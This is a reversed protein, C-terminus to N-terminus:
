RLFRKWFEKRKWPSRQPQYPGKRREVTGHPTAVRGPPPADMGLGEWDVFWTYHCTCYPQGGETRTCNPNPIPMTELAQAIPLRKDDLEERCEPCCTAAVIEVWGAKTADSDVKALSVLTYKAAESLLLTPDKGEEALFGAMLSALQPDTAHRPGARQYLGWIVDNPPPKSGFVKELEAEVRGFGTYGVKLYCDLEGFWHESRAQKETVLPGFLRGTKNLVFAEGCSKCKGKRQPTLHLEKGCSPCPPNHMTNM